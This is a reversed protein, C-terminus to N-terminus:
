GTYWKFSNYAEAVVDPDMKIFTAFPMWKKPKPVQGYKPEKALGIRMKEPDLVIIAHGNDPPGVASIGFGTEERERGKVMESFVIRALYSDDDWRQQRALANQVTNALSSGTWHTYLWVGKTKSNKVYVNARDGM